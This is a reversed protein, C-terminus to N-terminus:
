ETGYLMRKIEPDSMGLRKLSEEAQGFGADFGMPLTGASVRLTNAEPDDILDLGSRERKENDTLFTLGNLREMMAVQSEQVSAVKSLDLQLTIRDGQPYRYALFDQMSEAYKQALPIIRDQWMAKRGQEYNAFTQGDPLVVVVPVGFGACIEHASLKKGEIWDMDTPNIAFQQWKLGGELLLPRRANEPGTHWADIQEQLRKFSEDDLSDDSSLGGCPMGGNQMASANWEGAANHQDVSDGTPSVPSMGFAANKDTDGPAFESWYNINSQGTVQNVEWFAKVDNHEYKWGLVHADSGGLATFYYPLWNKLELPASRENGSDGVNAETWNGGAIFRYLVAQETFLRRSMFPSPRNLLKQLPHNPAEQGSVHVKIPISGVGEALLQMCRYAIANRKYAERAFTRPERASYQARVGQILSLLSVRRKSEPKRGFLGLM